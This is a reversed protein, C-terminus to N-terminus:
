KKAGLMYAMIRPAYDTDKMRKWFEEFTLEKGEIYWEKSGDAWECAPGDKRHYKGEICWYKSGNAYECAPGDLRHLKGEVLWAKYGNPWIAIGIFKKPIDSWSEINITEMKRM